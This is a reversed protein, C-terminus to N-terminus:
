EAREFVASRTSPSIPALYSRLIGKARLDQMANRVTCYGARFKTAADKITLAEDPNADFYALVRNVTLDREYGTKNIPNTM